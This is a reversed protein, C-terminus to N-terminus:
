AWTSARYWLLIIFSPWQLGYLAKRYILGLTALFRLSWRIHHKWKLSWFVLAWLTQKIQEFDSLSDITCILNHIIILSNIWFGLYNEVNVKEGFALVLETEKFCLEYRWFNYKKIQNINIRHIHTNQTDSFILLTVLQNSPDCM